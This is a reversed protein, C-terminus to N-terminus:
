QLLDKPAGLLRLGLGTRDLLPQALWGLVIGIAAMRAVPTPTRTAVFKM